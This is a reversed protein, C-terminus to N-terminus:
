PSRPRTPRHPLVRVGGQLAHLAARGLGPQARGQDASGRNRLGAPVPHHRDGSRVAHGTGADALHGAHVSGLRQRDRRAGRGRVPREPDFQPRRPLHGHLLGGEALNRHRRPDAPGHKRRQALERGRLGAGRARHEPIRLESAPHVGLRRGHRRRNGDGSPFVRHPLLAEPEREIRILIAVALAIAIATPVVVGVYILTNGLSIWFVKDGFLEHYNALGVFEFSKAGLQWNTLSM